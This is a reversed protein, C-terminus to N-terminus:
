VCISIITSRCTSAVPFLVAFFKSHSLCPQLEELLSFLVSSLERFQLANEFELFFDRLRTVPFTLTLALYLVSLLLLSFHLRLSHQFRGFVQMAPNLSFVPYFTSVDM